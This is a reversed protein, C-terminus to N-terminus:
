LNDSHNCVPSVVRGSVQMDEMQQACLIEAAAKLQTLLPDEEEEEEEEEQPVVGRGERAQRRILDDITRQLLLGAAQKVADASM